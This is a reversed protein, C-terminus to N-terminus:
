RKLVSSLKKILDNKDWSSSIKISPNEWDGDSIVQIIFEGNTDFSPYWGIDIIVGDNFSLQFLDEDLSTVEESIKKHFDLNSIEDYISEVNEIHYTKGLINYSTKM